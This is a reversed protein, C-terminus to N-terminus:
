REWRRLAEDREREAKEAREVQVARDGKVALEYSRLADHVISLQQEAEALQVRLAAYDEYRVLEGSPHPNLGHKHTYACWQTYRQIDAQEAM